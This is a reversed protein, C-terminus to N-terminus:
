YSGNKSGRQPGGRCSLVNAVGRKRAFSAAALESGVQEIEALQLVQNSAWTRM